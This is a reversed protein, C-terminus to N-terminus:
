RANAPRDLPLALRYRDKGITMVVSGGVLELEAEDAGDAASLERGDATLVFRRFAGDPHRVVLLRQDGVAVRDAACIEAFDAAGDLACAVREGGQAAGPAGGSCAALM